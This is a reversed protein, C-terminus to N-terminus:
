ENEAEFFNAALLLTQDIQAKSLQEAKIKLQEGDTRKFDIELSPKREFYSKLVEFIAVVTGSTLATLIILGITVPEGKAGIEAPADPLAAKADTESNMANMLNLTLKQLDDTETDDSTIKMSISM